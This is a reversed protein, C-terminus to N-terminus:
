KELIEILKFLIEEEDSDIVGDQDAVSKANIIINEKLTKLKIAERNDVIGDEMSKELEIMYEAVDFSIGELLQYEEETIKGDQKAIDAVKKMIKALNMKPFEPM